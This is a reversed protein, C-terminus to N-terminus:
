QMVSLEVDEWEGYRIPSQRVIARTQKVRLCETFENSPNEIGVIRERETKSINHYRVRTRGIYVLDDAGNAFVECNYLGAFDIGSISLYGYYLENTDKVDYESSIDFVHYKTDTM